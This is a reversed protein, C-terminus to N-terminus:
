CRRNFVRVPPSSRKGMLFFIKMYYYQMMQVVYITSSCRQGEHRRARYWFSTQECMYLGILLAIRLISVLVHTSKALVLTVTLCLLIPLLLHMLLFLKRMMDDLSRFIQSFLTGLMLDSLIMPKLLIGFMAISYNVIMAIFSFMSCAVCLLLPMTNPLTRMFPVNPM